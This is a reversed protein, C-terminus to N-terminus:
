LLRLYSKKLISTMADQLESKDLLKLIHILRDPTAKPGSVKTNIHLTFPLHVPQESKPKETSNGQLTFTMKHSQKEAVKNPDGTKSPRTKPLELNMTSIPIGQFPAKGALSSDSFTFGSWYELARSVRHRFNNAGPLEKELLLLTDKHLGLRQAILNWDDPNIIDILRECMQRLTFNSNEEQIKLYECLVKLNSKIIIENLSTPFNNGSLELRELNPLKCIPANIAILKNNRLDIHTLTKCDTLSLPIKRLNNDNLYIRKLYKFKDFINPLFYLGNQQLSLHILFKLYFILKPICHPGRKFVLDPFDEARVSQIKTEEEERSLAEELTVKPEDDPVYEDVEDIYEKGLKGISVTPDIFRTREFWGPPDM